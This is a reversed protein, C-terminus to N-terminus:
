IILQHLQAFSEADSLVRSDPSSMSIEQIYAALSDFVYTHISMHKKYWKIDFESLFQEGDTTAGRIDIFWKRNDKHLQLFTHIIGFTGKEKICVIQPYIYERTYRLYLAVAFTDCYGHLFDFASTETGEFEEELFAFNYRDEEPLYQADAWYGRYLHISNSHTM